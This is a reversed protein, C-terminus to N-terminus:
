GVRAETANRPRCRLNASRERGRQGSRVLCGGAALRRGVSTQRLHCASRFCERGVLVPHLRRALVLENDPFIAHHATLIPALAGASLSVGVVADYDKLEQSPLYDRPDIDAPADPLVIRDPVM